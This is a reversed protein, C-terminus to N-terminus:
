GAPVGGEEGSRKPEELCARMESRGRAVLVGEGLRLLGRADGRVIRRVRTTGREGDFEMTGEVALPGRRCTYAIRRNQEYSTVEYIAEFRCGLLEVQQVVDAGERLAGVTKSELVVPNWLPMNEPRAAFRFVRHCPRAIVVSEEIEIMHDGRIPHGPRVGPM